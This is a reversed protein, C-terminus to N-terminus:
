QPGEMSSLDASEMVSPTRSPAFRNLGFLSNNIGYGIGSMALPLRPTVVGNRYESIQQRMRGIEDEQNKITDELKQRKSEFGQQHEETAKLLCETQAELEPVKLANQHELCLQEAIVRIEEDSYSIAINLMDLAEEKLLGGSNCLDSGYYSDNKLGSLAITAKAYAGSKSHKVECTKSKPTLLLTKFDVLLQSIQNKYEKLEEPNFSQKKDLLSKLFNIEHLLFHLFPKRGPYGDTCEKILEELRIKFDTEKDQIINIACNRSKKRLEHVDKEAILKKVSSQSDHYRVLVTTLSYLLDELRTM